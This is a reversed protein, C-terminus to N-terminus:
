RRYFLSILHKIWDIILVTLVIAIVVAGAALVGDISNSGTYGILSELVSYM